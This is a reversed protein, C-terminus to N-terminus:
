SRLNDIIVPRQSNPIKPNENSRFTALTSKFM